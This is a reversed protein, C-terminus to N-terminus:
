YTLLDKVNFIPSINTNSPLDLLYANPGLKKIFPFPKIVQAHLKTFSNKPLSKPHMCVIINDGVNFKKTRCHVDAVLKYDMNSM